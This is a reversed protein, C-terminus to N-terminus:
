VKVSTIKLGIYIYIISMTYKGFTFSTKNHLSVQLLQLARVVFQTAGVMCLVKYIQCPCMQEFNYQTIYHKNCGLVRDNKM